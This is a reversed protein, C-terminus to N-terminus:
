LVLNLNSEQLRKFTDNRHKNTKAGTIFESFINNKWWVRYGLAVVEIRCQVRVTRQNRTAGDLSNALETGLEESQCDGYSAPEANGGRLSGHYCPREGAIRFCKLFAPVTKSYLDHRKNSSM